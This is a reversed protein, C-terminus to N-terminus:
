LPIVIDDDKADGTDAPAGTVFLSRIEAIEADTHHAVIKLSPVWASHGRDFKVLNTRMEYVASYLGRTRLAFSMDSKLGPLVRSAATKEVPWQVPAHMVGGVPVGFVGGEVNAPKAVLARIMAAQKFTPAKGDTWETTGGAALVDAKNAFVRPLVDPSYNEGSLYEKWFLQVSLITMRVPEGPGAVLNEAGIITSGKQFRDLKGMGSAIQLYPLRVQVDDVDGSFGGLTVSANFDVRAVASGTGEMGALVDQDPVASDGGAAKATKLAM